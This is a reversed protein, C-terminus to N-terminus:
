EASRTRPTGQWNELVKELMDRKVPTDKFLRKSRRSRILELVQDYSPLSELKIPNVTGEPCHSHSIAGHPCISVCHGCRYCKELMVDDIKPITDKKCVDADITIEIINPIGTM